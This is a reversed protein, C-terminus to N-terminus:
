AGDTGDYVDTCAAAVRDPTARGTFGERLEGNEFLAMAPAADIGSVRRFEPSSEGDLGGVAVDDPVAALIADLDDKMTECPDCHHKWVTVIARDHSSVFGEYSEDDLEVVGEPVPTGPGLERVVRAMRALIATSPSRDLHADIALFAVFEERTVGLEDIREAAAEPSDLGFVEAVSGHFREISSDAYTDHYVARTDEFETTTTVTTTEPDVSVVGGEVLADLLAEADPHTDRGTGDDVGGGADGNPGARVHQSDTEDGTM